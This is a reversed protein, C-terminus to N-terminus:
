IHTHMCVSINCSLPEFHNLFPLPLSNLRILVFQFKWHNFPWYNIRFLSQYYTHGVITPSMGVISPQPDLWWGDLPWPYTFSGVTLSPHNNMPHSCSSTKVWLCICDVIVPQHKIVPQNVVAPQQNNAQQNWISKNEFQSSAITAELQCDNKPIPCSNVFCFVILSSNNM